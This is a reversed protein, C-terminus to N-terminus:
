VLKAWILCFSDMSASWFSAFDEWLCGTVGHQIFAETIGERTLSPSTVQGVYLPLASCPCPSPVTHNKQCVLLWTGLLYLLSWVQYLHEKLFLARSSLVQNFLKQVEHLKLVEDGWSRWLWWSPLQAPVPTLSLPWTWASLVVGGRKQWPIKVWTLDEIHKMLFCCLCSPLSM